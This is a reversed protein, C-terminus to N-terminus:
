TVIMGFKLPSFLLKDLTLIRHQFSLLFLSTLTDPWSPHRIVIRVSFFLSRFLRCVFRRRIRPWRWSSTFSFIQSLRHTLLRQYLWHLDRLLWTASHSFSGLNRELLKWRRLSPCYLSSALCPFTRRDRHQSLHQLNLMGCPV